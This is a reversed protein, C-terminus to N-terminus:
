WSFVGVVTPSNVRMGKFISVGVCEVNGSNSRESFSKDLTHLRKFLQFLCSCPESYESDNNLCIKWKVEESILYGVQEDHM